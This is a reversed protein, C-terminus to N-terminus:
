EAAVDHAESEAQDCSRALDLVNKLGIDSKSIRDLKAVGIFINVRALCTQLESAMFQGLNVLGLYNGYAKDFVQQTAYFANVVLGEKTPEFSVNQLCPFGLQATAVHDREPDFVSAQLMSRRVGSRSRYQSIVWELQNGDCPGSGFMVMREFYLGRGNLPRNMAQIRPFSERYLEFFAHRDRGAIEWYRQPFITFAVTEISPKDQSTCIDDLSERVEAHEAIQGNDDFGDLSVVLPSIEKGPNDVIYAVIGAWVTSLNDGEVLHPAIAKQKRHQKM